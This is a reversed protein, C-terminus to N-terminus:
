RLGQDTFIQFPFAGTERIQDYLRAFLANTDADLAPHFKGSVNSDIGFALTTSIAYILYDSVTGSKARVEVALQLIFRAREDQSM